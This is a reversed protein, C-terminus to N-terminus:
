ISPEVCTIKGYKEGKRVEYIRVYEDQLVDGHYVTARINRISLNFLLYPIVNEDIEYLVFSTDPEDLWRQITLAGSGACMDVTVDSAGILKSLFLAVSKPTYDQKKEKRDAQYYQYIMQLWDKSLDNGVMEAFADMVDNKQQLVCGLLASGLSDVSDVEFLALTRKCLNSLEMTTESM